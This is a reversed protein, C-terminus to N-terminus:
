PIASLWAVPRWRRSPLRGDPFLLPVFTLALGLGPAWAWHSVWVALGGGPATGPPPSATHTLWQAQAGPSPSASVKTGRSNGSPRSGDRRQRGTAQSDAIGMTTIGTRVATASHDQRPGARSSGLPTLWPVLPRPTM